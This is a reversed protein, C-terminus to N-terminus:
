KFLTHVICVNDPINANDQQETKGSNKKTEKLIEDHIVSGAMDQRVFKWYMSPLHKTVNGHDTLTYLFWELVVTKLISINFKPTHERKGIPM